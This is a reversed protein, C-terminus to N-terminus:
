VTQYGAGTPLAKGEYPIEEGASSVRSCAYEMANMIHSFKNKIPREGYMGGASVATLKPYAYGGKMAEIMLECREHVLWSPRGGVLRTMLDFVASRRMSFSLEGMQPALSHKRMEGALSSKEVGGKTEVSPDCFHLSFGGLKSWELKLRDSVISVFARIDGDDAYYEDIFTIRSLQPIALGLCWALNLDTPGGDWGSILRSRYGAIIPGTIVHGTEVDENFNSGYVPKGEYVIWKDGFERSFEYAPMGAKQANLWEKSRKGPDAFFKLDIIKFGNKPNRWTYVGPMIREKTVTTVPSADVLDSM